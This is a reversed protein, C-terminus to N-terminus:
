KEPNKTRSYNMSSQTDFSFKSSFALSNEVYIRVTPTVFCLAENSTVVLSSSKLDKKFVVFQM